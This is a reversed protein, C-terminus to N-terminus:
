PSHSEDHVRSCLPGIEPITANRRLGNPRFVIQVPVHQITPPSVQVLFQGVELENQVVLLVIVHHGLSVGTREPPVTRIPRQRIPDVCRDLLDETLVSPALRHVSKTRKSRLARALASGTSQCRLEKVRHALDALALPQNM